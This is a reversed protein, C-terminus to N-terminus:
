LKSERVAPPDSEKMLKRVFDATMTWEAPEISHRNSPTTVVHYSFGMTRMFTATSRAYTDTIMPDHAGHMSLIPTSTCCSTLRSEVQGRTTLFGRMSVVGGLRHKCAIAVGLAVSGGQSFGGVVIHMPSVGRKIENEVLELVEEVSEWFMTEDHVAMRTASGKDLVDFWMAKYTNPYVMVPKVGADPFVYNVLPNAVMSPFKLWAHSSNGLGHLLIVTWQECPQGAEAPVRSVNVIM